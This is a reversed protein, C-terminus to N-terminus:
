PGPSPGAVERRLAAKARARLAGGRARHAGAKRRLTPAVLPNGPKRPRLTLTTAPSKM